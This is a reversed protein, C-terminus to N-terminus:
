DGPALSSFRYFGSTNTEQGSSVGTLTNKLSVKVGPVSRGHASVCVSLGFCPPDEYAQITKRYRTAIM